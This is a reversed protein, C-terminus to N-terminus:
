SFNNYENKEIGNIYPCLDFNYNFKSQPRRRDNEGHYHLCYKMNHNKSLNLCKVTKFTDLIFKEENEHM